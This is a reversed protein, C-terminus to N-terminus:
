LVKVNILFVHYSWSSFLIFSFIHVRYKKGANQVNAPKEATEPVTETSVLNSLIFLALAISTTGQKGM